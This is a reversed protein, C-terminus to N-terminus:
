VVSKRDKRGMLVTQNMTLQKFHKFDNPLHWLLQNDRGIVRNETYAVVFCINSM